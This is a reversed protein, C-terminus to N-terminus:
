TTPNKVRKNKGPHGCFSPAHFLLILSCVFINTAIDLEPDIGANNVEGNDARALNLDSADPTPQKLTAKLLYMM